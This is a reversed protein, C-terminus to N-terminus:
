SLKDHFHLHERIRCSCRCIELQQFSSKPGANKKKIRSKHPKPIPRTLLILRHQSRRPSIGNGDENFPLNQSRRYGFIELEPSSTGRPANAGDDGSRQHSPVKQGARKLVGGNCPDGTAVSDGGTAVSDRSGGYCLLGVHRLGLHDAPTRPRAELSM